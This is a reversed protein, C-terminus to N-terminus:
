MRKIKDIDTRLGNIDNNLIKINDFGEQKYRIWNSSEMLNPNFVRDYIEYKDGTKVSLDDFKLPYINFFPYMVPLQNGYCGNPLNVLSSNTNNDRWHQMIKDNGYSSYDMGMIGLSNIKHLSDGYQSYDYSVDGMLVKTNEYIAKGDVRNFLAIDDDNMFPVGHHVPEPKGDEIRFPNVLLARDDEGIQLLKGNYTGVLGQMFTKVKYLTEVMISDKSYTNNMLRICEKYYEKQKAIPYKRFIGYEVYDMYGMVQSSNDENYVYNMLTNNRLLGILNPDPTYINITPYKGIWNLIYTTYTNRDIHIPTHFGKKILYEGKDNKPIALDYKLDKSDILLDKNDEMVSLINDESDKYTLVEWTTANLSDNPDIDKYLANVYATYEYIYKSYVIDGQLKIDKQLARSRWPTDDDAILNYGTEDLWREDYFHAGVDRNRKNGIFEEIIQMMNSTVGPLLYIENEIKSTRYTSVLKDRLTQFKGIYSDYIEKFEEKKNAINKLENELRTIQEYVSNNMMEYPNIAGPSQKITITQKKEPEAYNQHISVLERNVSSLIDNLTNIKKTNSERKFDDLPKDIRKNRSNHLDSNWGSKANAFSSSYGRLKREGESITNQIDKSFSDFESKLGNRERAVSELYRNSLEREIMSKFSDVIYVLNSNKEELRKKYTYLTNDNRTTTFYRSLSKFYEQVKIYEKNYTDEMKIKTYYNSNLEPVLTTLDAQKPTLDITTNMVNHYRNKSTKNEELEENKKRIRKLIDTVKNSDYVDTTFKDSIANKFEVSLLEIERHITNLDQELKSSDGHEYNVSFLDKNLYLSRFKGNNSIGNLKSIDDENISKRDMRETTAIGINNNEKNNYKFFM